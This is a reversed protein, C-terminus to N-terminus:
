ASRRQVQMRNLGAHVPIQLSLILCAAALRFPDDVAIMLGAIMLRVIWVGAVNLNGQLM